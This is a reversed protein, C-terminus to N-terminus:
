LKLTFPPEAHFSSRSPMSRAQSIWEPLQANFISFQFYLLGRCPDRRRSATSYSQLSLHNPMSHLVTQCQDRRRFGNRCNLTSFQSNFTCCGEARIEGAPRPAIVKFHITTRCPIFFPKASIEGAFDMGAISRQFNLISLIVARPVSRAQPVRRSLKLTFSPEAHFSSRSPVLRALSGRAM